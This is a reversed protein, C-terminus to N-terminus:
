RAVRSRAGGSGGDISDIKVLRNVAALQEKHRGADGINMVGRDLDVDLDRGLIDDGPLSAWRIGAVEGENGELIALCRRDWGQDASSALILLAVQAGSRTAVDSRTIALFPLSQCTLEVVKILRRQVGQDIVPVGGRKL